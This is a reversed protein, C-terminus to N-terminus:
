FTEHREGCTALDKEPDRSSCKCNTKHSLAHLPGSLSTSCTFLKRCISLGVFWKEMLFPWRFWRLRISAIMIKLKPLIHTGTGLEEM